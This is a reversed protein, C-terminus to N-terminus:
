PLPTALRVLEMAKVAAAARNQVDLKRYIHDLHTQVTRASLGLIMAIEPNTKGQAVWRLVQSERDSLGVSKLADLSKVDRKRREDLLLLVDHDKRLTRVTLVGSEKEICFPTSVDAVSKTTTGENLWRVLPEPLRKTSGRGPWGFYLGLWHRARPTTQVIGGNASLLIIGREVEEIGETLLSIAHQAQTMIEANRYAQILHHRIINATLRDEETFDKAGRNMAVGVILPKAMDLIFALQHEIDIQRYCEGYIPMAHFASRRIVDSIKMARGDNGSNYWNVLPDTHAFREFVSRFKPLPFDSPHHHWVVRKRLLDVQSFTVIDAGIVHTIAAPVTMALEDLNQARYLEPLFQLVKELRRATLRKMEAGSARWLDVAPVSGFGLSATPATTAV